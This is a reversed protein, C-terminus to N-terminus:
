KRLLFTATEYTARVGGPDVSFNQQYDDVIQCLELRNLPANGKSVKGGTVGQEHIAKLFTKADRYIIEEESYVRRKIQFGASLICATTEELTPLTLEPTKEPAVIKRVEHLEKLTGHLMMGLAFTGGQDLCKFINEFTARLDTVWHLASSSIILPYCTGNRCTQANDVIWNIQPYHSFKEQSHTVMKEALDIADIPTDPFREVVRQTLQGTGAGLELIREPDMEPLISVVSKALAQQPLAHRDYTDAAASFRHEIM